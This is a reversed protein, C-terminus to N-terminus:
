RSERIRPSQPAVTMWSVQNASRACACGPGVHCTDQVAICTNGCPKGSTCVKCCSQAVADARLDAHWESPSASTVSTPAAPPAAWLTGAVAPLVICVVLRLLKQM